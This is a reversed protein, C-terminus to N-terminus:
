GIIRYLEWTSRYPNMENWRAVIPVMEPTALHTALAEDWEELHNFTWEAVFQSIAELGTRPTLLRFSFGEVPVNAVDSWIRIADKRRGPPAVVIRRDVWEGPKGTAPLEHVVRLLEHTGRNENLTM